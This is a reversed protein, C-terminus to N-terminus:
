NSVLPALYVDTAAVINAWLRTKPEVFACFTPKKTGIVYQELTLKSLRKLPFANVFEGRVRNAQDEYSTDFQADFKKLLTTFSPQAVM